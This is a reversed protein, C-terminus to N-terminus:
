PSLIPFRNITPKYIAKYTTSPLHRQVTPITFPTQLVKAETFATAHQLAALHCQPYYITDPM